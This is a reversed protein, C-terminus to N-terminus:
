QAVKSRLEPGGKPLPGEPDRLPKELQSPERLSQAAASLGQLRQWNPVGELLSELIWLGEGMHGM